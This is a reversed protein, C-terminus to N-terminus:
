RGLIFTDMVSIKSVSFCGIAPLKRSILFSCSPIIIRTFLSSREIILHQHLYFHRCKPLGSFMFQRMWLSRASIRGDSPRKSILM